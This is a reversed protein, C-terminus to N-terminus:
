TPRNERGQWARESVPTSLDHTEEESHMHEDRKKWANEVQRTKKIGENIRRLGQIYSYWFALKIKRQTVSFWGVELFYM